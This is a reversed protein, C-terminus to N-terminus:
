FKIFTRHAVFKQLQWILIKWKNRLFYFKAMKLSLLINMFYKWTQIFLFIFYFSLKVM